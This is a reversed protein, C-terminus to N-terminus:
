GELVMDVRHMEPGWGNPTTAVVEAGFRAFFPASLHSAGIHPRGGGVANLGDLVRTMIASGLGQGQLEPALLIWRLTHGAPDPLLGFAGVVQGHLLCVDYHFASDELFQQYGARENPAFFTPCNQDFLALCADRDSTAHPRFTPQSPM